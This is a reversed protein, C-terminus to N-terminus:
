PITLSNVTGEAGFRVLRAFRADPRIIGFVASPEASVIAASVIAISLGAGAM